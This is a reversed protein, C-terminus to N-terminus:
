FPEEKDNNDNSVAPANSAYKSRYEKGSGVYLQDLKVGEPPLVQVSITNGFDDARKRGAIRLKISTGMTGNRRKFKKAAASPIKDIEVDIIVISDM